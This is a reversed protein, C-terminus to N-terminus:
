EACASEIIDNTHKESTNISYFGESSVIIHDVFRIGLIECGSRILSTIKLDEKSPNLNGSPHNHAMALGVARNEIAHKFIVRQDFLSSSLGGMSIKEVKIVNMSADTLAIWIEEHALDVFNDKFVFYLDMPTRVSIKEKGKESLRRRGLELAAIITIAKADGVGSFNRKLEDVSCLGLKLLSNDYNSLIKRSLDLASEKRTGSGILIALLEANSLTKKGKQLLKERPRDDEALDRIKFQKVDESM